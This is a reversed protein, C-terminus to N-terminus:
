RSSLKSFSPYQMGNPFSYLNDTITKCVLALPNRSRIWQIMFKNYTEKILCSYSFSITSIVKRKPSLILLDHQSIVENCRVYNKIMGEEYDKGQRCHWSREYFCVRAMSKRINLYGSCVDVFMFEVLNSVGQIESKKTTKNMSLFLCVVAPNTMHFSLWLIQPKWYAFTRFTGM